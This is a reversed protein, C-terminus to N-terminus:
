DGHSGEDSPLNERLGADATDLHSVELGRLTHIARM